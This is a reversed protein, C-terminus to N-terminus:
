DWTDDVGDDDGKGPPDQEYVVHREIVRVSRPPNVVTLIRYRRNPRHQRRYHLTIEGHDLYSALKKDDEPSLLEPDVVVRMVDRPEHTGVSSGSPRNQRWNSGLMTEDQIHTRWTESGDPLLVAMVGSPLIWIEENPRSIGTTHGANRLVPADRVTREVSELTNAIKRLATVGRTQVGAFRAPDIRWTRRWLRLRRRWGHRTYYEQPRSRGDLTDICYEAAAPLEAIDITQFDPHDSMIEVGHVSGGGVNRVIVDITTFGAERPRWFVVPSGRFQMRAFWASAAAAGVGLLAIVAGSLAVITPNADLFQFLDPLM